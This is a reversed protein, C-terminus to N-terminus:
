WGRRLGRRRWIYCGRQRRSTKGKVPMHGVGVLALVPFALGKSVTMTMVTITNSTPDFDGPSRRLEVSRPLTVDNTM